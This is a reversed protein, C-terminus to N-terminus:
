YERVTIRSTLDSITKSAYDLADQKKISFVVHSPLDPLDVPNYNNIFVVISISESAAISDIKAAREVLLQVLKEKIEKRRQAAVRKIDAPSTVANFPSRPMLLAIKLTIVLGYGDIYAVKSPEMLLGPVTTNMVGDVAAQLPPTEKKLNNASATNFPTQAAVTSAFVLVLFLTRLMSIM